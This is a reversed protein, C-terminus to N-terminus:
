VDKKERSGRRRSSEVAARRMASRRLGMSLILVRASEVV